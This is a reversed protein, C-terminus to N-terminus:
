KSKFGPVVAVSSLSVVLVFDLFSGVHINIFFCPIDLEVLLLVPKGM